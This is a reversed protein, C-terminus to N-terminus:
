WSRSFSLNFRNKANAYRNVKGKLNQDIEVVPKGLLQTPFPGFKDEPLINGALLEPDPDPSEDKMETDFKLEGDVLKGEDIHLHKELEKLKLLRREDLIKQWCDETFLRYHKQRIQYRSLMREAIISMAPATTSM